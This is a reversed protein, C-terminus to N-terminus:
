ISTAFAARGSLKPGQLQRGTAVSRPAPCRGRPDAEPLGLYERVAGNGGTADALWAALDPARKQIREIEAPRAARAALGASITHADGRDPM